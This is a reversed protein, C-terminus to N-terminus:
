QLFGTQVQKTAQAAGQTSHKARCHARHPGVAADMREQHCSDSIWSNMWENRETNELLRRFNM